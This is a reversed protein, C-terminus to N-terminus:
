PHASSSLIAPSLQIMKKVGNEVSYLPRWGIARLLKTDAQSYMLEGDRYPLAGFNLLARSNVASHITEVFYRVSVSVGSGLGIELWGRGLREMERLMFSYASIVDDIYVFDRRQEGPTLKIEMSNQRCENLIWAPFKSLDDGPGYIHELKVNIFRMKSDKCLLKAWDSLQSKSLTYANLTAANVTDANFFIDTKYDLAAELIRLPFSLNADVIRSVREGKRGYCTANHFVAQFPGYREFILPIAIEDINVLNIKESVKCIRSLDSHVRKLGTVKHGESLLSLVLHSGLFGTVGTVLINM